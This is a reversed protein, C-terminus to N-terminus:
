EREHSANFAMVDEHQSLFSILKQFGDTRAPIKIYLDFDTHVGHKVIGSELATAHLAHLQEDLSAQFALGNQVTISLRSTIFADGGITFRHMMVMMLVVAVTVFLGVLYMGAGIGLGVGATVWIVASSTLGHISKGEKFIVGAGLFSVGSVVQAAIRAADAGRTGAFLNEGTGLDAFGYKSIVMMLSAAMAVISHTRIGSEKFRRSREYGIVAGCLGSVIVRLCFALMQGLPLQENMIDFLTIM